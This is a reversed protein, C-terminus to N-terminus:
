VSVDKDPCTFNCMESMYVCSNAFYTECSRMASSLLLGFVGYGEWIMQM